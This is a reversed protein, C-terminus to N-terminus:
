SQDREWTLIDAGTLKLGKKLTSALHDISKVGKWLLRSSIRLLAIVDVLSLSREGGEPYAAM